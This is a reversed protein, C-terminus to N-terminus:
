LDFFDEETIQTIDFFTSSSLRTAQNTIVKEFLNRIARANAFNKAKHSEINQIKMRM